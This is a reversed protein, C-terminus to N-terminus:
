KGSRKNLEWLIKAPRKIVYHDQIDIESKIEHLEIMESYNRDTIGRFFPDHNPFKM